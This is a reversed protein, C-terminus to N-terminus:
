FRFNFGAHALLYFQAADLLTYHGSFELRFAVRRRIDFDGLAAVTLGVTTDSEETGDPRIGSLDYGGVGVFLGSEGLTHTFFGPPNHYEAGLVLYTIEADSISGLLEGTGYDLRGLRASVLTRDEIVSGLDLQFSSNTFGAQDEDFSGGVGGLVAVNFTYLKQAAGAAPLALALVLPLGAQFLLRRM